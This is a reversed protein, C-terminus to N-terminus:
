KIKTLYDEKKQFIYFFFCLKMSYIIGKKNQIFIKQIYDDPPKIKGIFAVQFDESKPLSPLLDLINDPNQPFTIINGRCKYQNLYNNGSETTIKVITCKVHCRNILTQEVITLNKLEDPISGIYLNNALAYKPLKNKGM